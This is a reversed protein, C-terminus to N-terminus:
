NKGVKQLTGILIAPTSFSNPNRSNTQTLPQQQDVHFFDQLGEM